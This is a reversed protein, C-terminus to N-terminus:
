FIRTRPTKQIIIEQAFNNRLLSVSLQRRKYIDTPYVFIINQRAALTHQVQDTNGAVALIDVFRQLQDLCEM